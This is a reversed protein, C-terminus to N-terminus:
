WTLLSVWVPAVVSFSTATVLVLASPFYRNPPTLPPWYITLAFSSCYAGGQFAGPGEAQLLPLFRRTIQAEEGPKTQASKPHPDTGKAGPIAQSQVRQLSPVARGAPKQATPGDKSKELRPAIIQRQLSVPAPHPQLQTQARSGIHVQHQVRHGVPGAPPPVQEVIEIVTRRPGSPFFGPTRYLFAAGDM